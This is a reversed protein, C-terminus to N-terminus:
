IDSQLESQTHCASVQIHNEQCFLEYEEDLPADTIIHGIDELSWYTMLSVKGFKSHDALLFSQASNELVAKKVIYEETTANTLGNKQTVGTCAMFAKTINYTKLYDTVETGAFSLTERNLKGPMSIINLRPYQVAKWFLQLSNTLITCEKEAIYDILNLCTTGTDIYITDQDEIFQAAMQCIADKEKTFRIGRESYPLLKPIVNGSDLATVGGYVKKIIGKKVLADVDRRVTNKSVNFKTCLTDLSVTKNKLIYSELLDIRETRM